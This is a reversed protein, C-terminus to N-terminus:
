RVVAFTSNVRTVGGSKFVEALALYTGSALRRVDLPIEYGFRGDSGHGPAAALERELVARGLVDFVRVTVGEARPGTEVRLMPRAGPLVPNPSIFTDGTKIDLGARGAAVHIARSGRNAKRGFMDNRM